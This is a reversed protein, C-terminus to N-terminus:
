LSQLRLEGPEARPAARQSGAAAPMPRVMWHEGPPGVTCLTPFSVLSTQLERRSMAMVLTMLLRWGSVAQAECKGRLHLLKSLYNPRHGEATM